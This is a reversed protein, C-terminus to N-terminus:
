HTHTYHHNSRREEKALLPRRKGLDPTQWVTQRGEKANYRFLSSRPKAVIRSKQTGTLSRQQRHVEKPPTQEGGRHPFGQKTARLRHFNNKSRINSEKRAKRLKKKKPSLDILCSGDNKNTNHGRTNLSIGWVGLGEMPMWEKNAPGKKKDWRARIRNEV